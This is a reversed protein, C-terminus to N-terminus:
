RVMKGLADALKAEDTNRAPILAQAIVPEPFRIEDLAIPQDTAALTHGTATQKLGVVAVIEGPGACKLRERRDGMLRYVHSIRESRKITSNFLTDGPHLEGSYIRLFVLDGHKESITKFALACFPESAEPKREVREKSKPVFGHVPPRDAPSPLYDRVADLLLRVGHYEKASGCLVPTLKGSLTGARLARRLLDESVPKGELVCELLHDDAHSAAELLEDHYKKAEARFATPIEEWSYKIHTPDHADQTWFKMRVLDIVGTFESSQGAPITCI